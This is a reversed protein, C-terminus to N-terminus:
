IQDLWAPAYELLYLSIDNCRDLQECFHDEPPDYVPTIISYRPM